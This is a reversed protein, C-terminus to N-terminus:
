GPGDRDDRADLLARFREPDFSVFLGDADACLLDGAMLTGSVRIKRGESSDLRGILSLETHLPTPSRYNVHLYATMGAAGSLSQTAGLVEDFVAAVYGGHVCGPPGEYAAGFTVSGVISDTGYDLVLPPSMPNALGIFPSHDFFAYLAAEGESALDREENIAAGANAAERFGQYTSGHPYRALMDGVVELQDAALRLEAESATNSVLHEIIGRTAAALRHVEVRRSTMELERIQDMRPSRNPADSM